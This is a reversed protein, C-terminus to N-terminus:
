LYTDPSEGPMLFAKGDTKLFELTMNLMRDIVEIKEPEIRSFFNQMFCTYSAACQRRMRLGQQTLRIGIMRRDHPLSIREVMGDQIMANLTQSVIGSSVRFRAALDKVVPIGNKQDSLYFLYNMLRIKGLTMRGRKGYYYVMAPIKLNTTFHLILSWVPLTNLYERGNWEHSVLGPISLDSPQRIVALEGGTRSEALRVFVEETIAMEEPTMGRSQRLAELMKEFHLLPTKRFERLQDTVQILISRHDQESRVRELLGDQILTDVAQSVAGSSLGTVALLDKMAPRADPREFFFQVIPFEAFNFQVKNKELLYYSTNRLIDSVDFLRVWFSRAYNSNIMTFSSEM